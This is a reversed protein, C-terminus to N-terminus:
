DLEQLRKRAVDAWAGSPELNLYTKLHNRAVETRGLKLLTIAVNFHADAFTPDLEVARSFHEGASELRGEEYDLFGLNYHAEPQDPDVEVAKEYLTKADMLSGSRYLLNGLNTYANALTPDMHIARHYAEEAQAYTAEDEDLRCGELYWEYATLGKKKASKPLKSIIQQEISEVDFDLLLQGSEAEYEREADMVVVTKADSLIRLKGIPHVSRPIEDRLKDV